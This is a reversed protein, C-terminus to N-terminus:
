VVSRLTLRIDLTISEVRPYGSCQYQTDATVADHRVQALISGVDVPDYLEHLLVANCAAIVLHFYQRESRARSGHDTSRLSGRDILPLIVDRPCNIVAVPKLGFFM